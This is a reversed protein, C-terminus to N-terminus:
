LSQRRTQVRAKCQEAAEAVARLMEAHGEPLVGDKVGVLNAVDKSSQELTSVQTEVWSMTRDIGAPASLALEFVNTAANLIALIGANQADFEHPPYMSAGLQSFSFSYRCFLYYDPELLNCVQDISGSLEDFSDGMKELWEV